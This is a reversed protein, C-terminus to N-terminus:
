PSPPVADGRRRICERYIAEKVADVDDYIETNWFRLVLWGPNQIAKTRRLDLRRNNVHSLGDAEVIVMCEVCAFDVIYEGMPHQRRFKFGALARNRLAGWLRRETPVDQKRLSRALEIKRSSALM